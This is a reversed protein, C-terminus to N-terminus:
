QQSHLHLREPAKIVEEQVSFAEHLWSGRLDFDHLFFLAGSNV